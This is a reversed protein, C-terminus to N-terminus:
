GCGVRVDLPWVGVGIIESDRVLQEAAYGNRGLPEMIVVFVDDHSVVNQTGSRHASGTHRIRVITWYGYEARDVARRDRDIVGYRRRDLLGHRIHIGGIGVHLLIVVAARFQIAAVVHIHTVHARNHFLFATVNIYGFVEEMAVESMSYIEM